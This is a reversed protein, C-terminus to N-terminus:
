GRSIPYTIYMIQKFHYQPSFHVTIHLLVTTFTLKSYSLTLFCLCLSLLQTLCLFCICPWFSFFCYFIAQLFPSSSSMQVSLLLSYSRQNGPQPSSLHLAEGRWGQCRSVAHDVPQNVNMGGHALQRQARQWRTM